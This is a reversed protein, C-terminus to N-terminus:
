GPKFSTTINNLFFREEQSKPACFSRREKNNSGEETVKKMMISYSLDEVDIRVPTVSEGEDMAKGGLVGGEELTPTHKSEEEM